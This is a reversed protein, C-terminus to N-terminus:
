GDELHSRLLAPKQKMTRLGTEGACLQWKGFLLMTFTKAGRIIVCKAVGVRFLHIPLRSLLPHIAESSARIGDQMRLTCICPVHHFGVSEWSLEFTCEDKFQRQENSLMKLLGHVYKSESLNRQLQLLTPNPRSNAPHLRQM